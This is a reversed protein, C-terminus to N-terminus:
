LCEQHLESQVIKSFAKNENDINLTVIMNLDM